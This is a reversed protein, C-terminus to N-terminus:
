KSSYVSAGIMPKATRVSKGGGCGRDGRCVCAGIVNDESAGSTALTSSPNTCYYPFTESVAFLANATYNPPLERQSSERDYDPLETLPAINGYDPPSPQALAKVYGPLSELQTTSKSEGVETLIECESSSSYSSSTSTPIKANGYDPPLDAKTSNGYDPPADKGNNQYVPPARIVSDKSKSQEVWSEYKQIQQNRVSVCLNCFCLQYEEQYKQKYRLATETLAIDLEVHEPEDFADLLINYGNDEFTSCSLLNDTRWILDIDLTPTLMKRSNPLIGVNIALQFWRSYRICSESLIEELFPSHLWNIQNMKKIYPQLNLSCKIFNLDFDDEPISKSITLYLLKMKSYTKIISEVLDQIHQQLTTKKKLTSMVTYKMSKKRSINLLKDFSLDLLPIGSEEIAMTIEQITQQKASKLEAQSLNSDLIGKYFGCLEGSQLDRFLKRKALEEHNITKSFPCKCNDLNFVLQFSDKLFGFDYQNLLPIDKALLELCIPCRINVENKIHNQYATYHKPEEFYYPSILQLYQEKESSSPEFNFTVDDIAQAISKVPFPMELFAPFKLRAFNDYFHGPNLCSSYWILCIDLPPVIRNMLKASLDNGFSEKLSSAFIIFRRTANAIFVSWSKEGLEHDLVVQDNLVQFAKLIKLHCKVEEVKPVQKNYTTKQDDSTNNPEGFNALELDNMTLLM